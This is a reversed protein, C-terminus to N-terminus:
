FLRKGIEYTGYTGGAALVGYKIFVNRLEDSRKAADATKSVADVEAKLASLKEFSMLRNRSLYDIMNNAVAESREPYLRLNEKLDQIKKTREEATEAIKAQRAEGARGVEKGKAAIRAAEAEKAAAAVESRKLDSVYRSVRNNLGEVTSLWENNTKLWRAAEDATKGQLENVTHQNAFKRVAAEDEFLQKRLVDITDRNKFYYGPYDSPMMQPQEPVAKEKAVPRKGFTTEFADLPGSMEKYTERFERRKPSFRNLADSMEGSIKGAFQQTVADYGEKPPGSAREQFKRFTKEVAEINRAEYLDRYMEEAIKKEAPTTSQSFITNKLYNLFSRGEDSRVFQGKSSAEAFYANADNEAQRARNKSFRFEPGGVSNQMEDGLKGVSSPKGLDSFQRASAEREAQAATIAKEEAAGFTQQRRTRKEAEAQTESAARQAIGREAEEATRAIGTRLGEEAERAAGRKALLDKALGVGSKGAKYLLGGAAVGLPLLEGATQYGAYEKKPEPIGIKKFVEEVNKTTPFATEYGRFKPDRSPTTILSEIDGIGGLTSAGLGYAMAGARGPAKAYEGGVKELFSQPEAKKKGGPAVIADEEGLLNRGAPAEDALLNRGTDAM